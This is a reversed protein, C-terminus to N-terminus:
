ITLCGFPKLKKKNKILISKSIIGLELIIDLIKMIWFETNDSIFVTEEVKYLETIRQVM